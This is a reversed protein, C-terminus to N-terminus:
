ECTGRPMARWGLAPAADCCAAPALLWWLALLPALSCLASLEGASMVVGEPATHSAVLPTSEGRPLTMDSSRAEM